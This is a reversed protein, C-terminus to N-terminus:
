CGRLCFDVRATSYTTKKVVDVLLAEDDSYGRIAPASVVEDGAEQASLL